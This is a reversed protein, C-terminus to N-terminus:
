STTRSATWGRTHPDEGGGQKRPTKHVHALSINGVPLAQLTLRRASFENKALLCPYEVAVARVEGDRDLQIHNLRQVLSWQM